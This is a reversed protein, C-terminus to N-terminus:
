SVLNLQIGKDIITCGNYAFVSVILM